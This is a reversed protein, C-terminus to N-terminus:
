EPNDSRDQGFGHERLYARMEDNIRQFVRPTLSFHTTDPELNIYGAGRWGGDADALREAREKFLRVARELHFNDLTGCHLRVQETVIPGYKRWDSAVLRSIDYASWSEVVARDIRGTRADFMPVPRGTAPDAPSFMSEWGDWQQGSAGTPDLAYEMACEERVTMVTEMDGEVSVIERYSSREAGDADLYLSEDEYLDSMQFARFDVPDPATVWCAGFVDPRTLLLWLSSWAGSSQGTLVRAEPRPDLRFARELHPILETVLATARPGNNASDAFGHHGLPADADLVVHVAMPAIDEVGPVSLMEAYTIAKEHRAGLGPVVYVTPWRREPDDAYGPPLAVGARHHVDRGYFDSLRPSRLEVWRLNATEVPPAPPRVTQTLRLDVVDAADRRLTADRVVSLVNGPGELLTRATADIDLAAQVRVPGDLTDLAAPFAVAAGDIRVTDGPRLDAVAVSAIPQPPDWFPGLAPMQRQWGRHSPTMFFLVLRGAVPGAPAPDPDFTVVYADEGAAPPASAPVAASDGQGAPRRTMAVVIAAGVAAILGLQVLPRAIVGGDYPRAFPM